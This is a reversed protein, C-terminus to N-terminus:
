SVIGANTSLEECWSTNLRFRWQFSKTPTVLGVLCDGVRGDKYTVTITGREECPTRAKTTLVRGKRELPEESGCLKLVAFRAIGNPDEVVFSDQRDSCGALASVFIPGLWRV